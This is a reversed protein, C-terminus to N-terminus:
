ALTPILIQEKTLEKSDRPHWYSLETSYWAGYHFTVNTIGIGRMGKLICLLPPFAAAFSLSHNNGVLSYRSFARASDTPFRVPATSGFIEVDCETGASRCVGISKAAFTPPDKIVIKPTLESGTM